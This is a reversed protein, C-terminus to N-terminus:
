HFFSLIQDLFPFVVSTFWEQVNFGLVFKLGIVLLSWFSASIFMALKIRWKNKEIASCLLTGVPMSIITPTIFAIGWIGWNASFKTLWRIRKNIRIHVKKEKPKILKNKVVIILDWLYLYIFVGLMGGGVTSLYFLIPNFNATLAWFLGVIFKVTCVLVISVIQIWDNM